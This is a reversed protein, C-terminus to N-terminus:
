KKKEIRVSDRTIKAKFELLTIYAPRKVEVRQKKKDFKVSVAGTVSTKPAEKGGSGEVIYIPGGGPALARGNVDFIGIWGAADAPIESQLGLTIRGTDRSFEEQVIRVAHEYAANVKSMNATALYSRYIPLGMAALIGIIAVAIMLEVLSFGGTKRRKLERM